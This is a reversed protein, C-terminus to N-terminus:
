ESFGWLCTEAEIVTMKLTIESTIAVCRVVNTRKYEHLLSMVRFIAANTVLVHKHSNKEKPAVAGGGGEGPPWWPRRIWSTELDCVVVCWLRYSEEPRTILGVCLSRGSFVCWECCVSMWAGPPNRVWLGLLRAAASGRRLCSKCPNPTQMDTNQPAAAM